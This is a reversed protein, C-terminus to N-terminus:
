SYIIIFFMISFLITKLYFTINHKMYYISVFVLHLCSFHKFGTLLPFPFTNFCTKNHFILVFIGSSLGIVLRFSVTSLSKLNIFPFVIIAHVNSLAFHLLKCTSACIWLSKNIIM